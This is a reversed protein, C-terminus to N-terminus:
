PVMVPTACDKVKPSLVVRCISLLLKLRRGGPNDLLYFFMGPHRVGDNVVSNKCLLKRVLLFVLFRGRSELTASIDTELTM